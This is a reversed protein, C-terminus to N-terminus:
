IAWPLDGHRLVSSIPSLECGIRRSDTKMIIIIIRRSDTKMIIIIIRRSDTKM